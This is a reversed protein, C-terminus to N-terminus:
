FAFSRAISDAYSRLAEDAVALGDTSVPEGNVFSRSLLADIVTLAIEIRVQDGADAGDAGDAADAGDIATVAGEVDFFSPAHRQHAHRQHALRSAIREAVVAIGRVGDAERYDLVDGFRVASFGTGSEFEHRLAEFIAILSREIDAGDSVPTTQIHDRDFREINRDALSQFLVTRDPFYRYVTGIACHAEIAVNNTTMRERGMREIVRAAADLIEDIKKDARYQTPVTRLLNSGVSRQFNHTKSGM